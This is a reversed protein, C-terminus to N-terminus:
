VIEPHQSTWGTAQEYARAVRYVTAEDFPKGIIQMSLPLGTSAFGTPIALAPSGTLNFPARAQRGYLRECLEADEIPCAPEMSSATIAVDVPAMCAEFKRKLVARQRMAHVYDAARLFAGPMLRQRALAGYDQPREQLWREHIAYAESLLIVRNAAAYDALPGPDIEQMAAGQDALMRVAEEISRTMEADAEFDQTYFRRIVGIRLGAVGQDLAATFDAVATRASGPDDPDHGAIVGLLIANDTVTRTLPGVHDLAYSLPLVGRRSVRGYTAKMGVIGCMSAPNRVSGGTDTGLAAPLFGAAVAVGAGSSSGGPFYDRNWANRAPPWPLDFSPGGIAFEHTSLKGLLVAGAHRFQRTVFADNTAVNDALIKSHGTTPLGTVDIIDKLGYPVGHMPGRWRGAQIDDEAQKAQQLALEPTLRLFANFRGDHAEIRDLLARTYEVPSLDRRRLHQSAEAITLYALDTM